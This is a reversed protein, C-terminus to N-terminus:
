QAAALASHISGTSSLLSKHRNRTIRISKWSTERKYPKWEPWEESSRYCLVAEDFIHTALERAPAVLFGEATILLNQPVVPESDMRRQTSVARYAMFLQIKRARKLGQWQKMKKLTLVDGPRIVSYSFLTDFSIRSKFDEVNKPNVNGKQVWLPDYDEISGLPARDKVAQIPQSLHHSRESQGLDMPMMGGSRQNEPYSMTRSEELEKDLKQKLTHISPM